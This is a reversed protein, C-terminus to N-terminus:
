AFAASSSLSLALLTAWSSSFGLFSAGFSFGDGFIISGSPPGPELGGRTSFGRVSTSCSVNRGGGPSLRSSLPVLLSSLFFRPFFPYFLHPNRIESHPIRLGCNSIRLRSHKEYDQDDHNDGAEDIGDAAFS